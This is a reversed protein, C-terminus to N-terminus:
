ESTKCFNSLNRKTFANEALHKIPKAIESQM